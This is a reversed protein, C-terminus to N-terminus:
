TLESGKSTPESEIDLTWLEPFYTHFPMKTSTRDLYEETTTFLWQCKRGTRCPHFSVSRQARCSCFLCRYTNPDLPVSMWHHVSLSLSGSQCSQWPLHLYTSKNLIMLPFMLWNITKTEEFSLSIIFPACVNRIVALDWWTNNFFSWLSSHHLLSLWM